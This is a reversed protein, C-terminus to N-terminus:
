LWELEIILADWTPYETVIAPKLHMTNIEKALHQCVGPNTLIRMRQEDIMFLDKPVGYGRILHCKAIMLKRRIFRKQKPNLSELKKAYGFSPALYPLYIAGRTLTGDPNMIDFEQKANKARRKIRNALQVRDKLKATCYHVNYSFDKEQAERLLDKALAESGKVGYSLRDKTRLGQESLKNAKADSVELENINLFRIKKDLFQMLKLTKQKKGPIAPIEVGVDWDLKAALDIRPWLTEDELDPHFRIEDLGAAHLRRLREPTALDFSTYLHIHFKKGFVKKLAKIYKVTRELKVLPDGGTFGAGKADMLKAEKIIDKIDATPWENAYTVDHQHKQDSIPCYSCNRPCIGTVFMVLKEGKVCHQCGRPLPGIRYSYFPTKEIKSLRKRASKKTSTM